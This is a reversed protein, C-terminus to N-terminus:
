TIMKFFHDFQVFTCLYSILIFLVNQPHEIHSQIKWMTPKHGRNVQLALLHSWSSTLLLPLGQCPVAPTWSWLLKPLESGGVACFFRLSGLDARPAQRHKQGGRLLYSSSILRLVLLSFSKTTRFFTLSPPTWLPVTPEPPQSSAPVGKPHLLVSPHVPSSPALKDLTNGM